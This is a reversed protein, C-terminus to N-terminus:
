AYLEELTSKLVESEKKEEETEAADKKQAIKMKIEALKTGCEVLDTVTGLYKFIGLLANNQNEIGEISRIKWFISELADSIERAVESREPERCENTECPRM